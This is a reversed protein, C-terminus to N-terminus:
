RKKVPVNHRDLKKIYDVQTQLPLLNSETEALLKQERLKM